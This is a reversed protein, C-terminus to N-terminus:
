TRMSVSVIRLDHGATQVDDRGGDPVQVVNRHSGEVREFRDAEDGGFVCAACPKKEAMETDGGRSRAKVLMVFV